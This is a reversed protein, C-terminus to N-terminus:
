PKMFNALEDVAELVQDTLWEFSPDSYLKLAEEESFQLRSDGFEFGKTIKPKQGVSVDLEKEFWDVTAAALKEAVAKRGDALTMQTVKGRKSEFTRKLAENVGREHLKKLKDSHSGIVRVVMGTPGLVPHVLDVDFTADNVKTTSLDALNMNSETPTGGAGSLLVPPVQEHAARWGLNM